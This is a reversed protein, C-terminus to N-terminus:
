IVHITRPFYEPNGENLTEFILEKVRVIVYKYMFDLHRSDAANLSGVARHADRSNAHLLWELFM